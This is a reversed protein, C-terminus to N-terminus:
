MAHMVHCAAAAEARHRRCEGKQLDGGFNTNAARLLLGANGGCVQLAGQMSTHAPAAIVTLEIHKLRVEYVLEWDKESVTGEVLTDFFQRAEDAPFDGIVQVNYFTKGVSAYGLVRQIPHLPSPM